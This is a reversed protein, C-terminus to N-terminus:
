PEADAEPEAEVEIRYRKFFVPAQAGGGGRRRDRLKFAGYSLVALLLTAITSILIVASLYPLVDM